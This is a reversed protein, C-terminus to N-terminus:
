RNGAMLQKLFRTIRRRTEATFLDAHRADKIVISLAFSVLRVNSPASSM